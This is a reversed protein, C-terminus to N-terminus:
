HSALCQNPTLATHMTSPSQGFPQGFQGYRRGPTGPVSRVLLASHPASQPNETLVHILGSAISVIVATVGERRHDDRTRAWQNRRPAATGVFQRSAVAERVPRASREASSLLRDVQSIPQLLLSLAMVDKRWTLRTIGTSAQRM